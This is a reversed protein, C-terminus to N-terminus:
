EFFLVLEIEGWELFWRKDFRVGLMVEEEVFLLIM